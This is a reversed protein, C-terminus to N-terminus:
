EDSFDQKAVMATVLRPFDEELRVIWSLKTRATRDTHTLDFEIMFRRGFTDAGM